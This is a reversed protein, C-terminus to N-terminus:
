FSKPWLAKAGEILGALDDYSMHQLVPHPM